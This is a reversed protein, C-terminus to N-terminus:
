VGRLRGRRGSQVWGRQVTAVPHSPGRRRPTDARDVGTASLFTIAREVLSSYPYDAIRQAFTILTSSTRYLSEFLQTIGRGTALWAFSGLVAFLFAFSFTTGFVLDADIRTLAIQRTTPLALSPISLLFLALFLIFLFPLM